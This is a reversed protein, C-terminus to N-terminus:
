KRNTGPLAGGKRNIVTISSQENVGPLTISAENTVISTSKENVNTLALVAENALIYDLETSYGGLTANASFPEPAMVMFYPGPRRKYYIIAVETSVYLFGDSAIALPNKSLIGETAIQFVNM